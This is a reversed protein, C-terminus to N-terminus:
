SRLADEIDAFFQQQEVDGLYRKVINGKRDILFSTPTLRVEGFAQAIEGKPDLTVTFPLGRSETFQVVYDPRDYQMAVAVVEYGKPGYTKYSETIMPMKRVCTVCSTAWFNVLVVKGKLSETTFTEGQLSTFSTNPAPKAPAVMFWAGAALVAVAAAFIVLRPLLRSSNSSTASM